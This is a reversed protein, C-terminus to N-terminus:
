LTTIKNKKQFASLPLMYGTSITYSNMEVEWNGRALGNSSNVALNLNAFGNGMKWNLGLTLRDFASISNFKYYDKLRGGTYLVNIFGFGYGINVNVKSSGININPTIATHSTYLEFNYYEKPVLDYSSLWGRTSVKEYMIIEGKYQQIANTIELAFWKVPIYKSQIQAFLSKSNPLYFFGDGFWGNDTGTLGTKPDDPIKYFFDTYLRGINLGFYWGKFKPEKPVVL